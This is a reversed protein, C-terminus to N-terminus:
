GLQLGLEAPRQHPMGMRTWASTPPLIPQKHHHRIQFSLLPTLYRNFIDARHLQVADPDRSELPVLVHSIYVSEHPELQIQLALLWDLLPQPLSAM